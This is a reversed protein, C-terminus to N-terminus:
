RRVYLNLYASGYNDSTTCSSVGELMGIRVTDSSSTRGIVFDYGGIYSTAGTYDSLSLGCVSSGWNQAVGWNDSAFQFGVPNCGTMASPYTCHGHTSGSAYEFFMEDWTFGETNYYTGTYGTGYIEASSAVQTWGGGDTTMDCYYSGADLYYTGDSASASVSLIEACDEAPCAASTGLVGDDSTGDCDNDAGDCLEPAGPYSVSDGDDCDTSDAVAGGTALCTRSSNSADGYGDSDNDAYWTSATSTDLSSDADDTLGDCDDDVSNCVEQAAPNVASDSDDCDSDDEIYGSPAECADVGASADGYGDGDGDLYYTEGSSSDWSSDADDVLGDCDDDTENCVETAGPNVAGDGDDCDTSDEVYSSPAECADLGSSADGYGDGDGDLYYTEGSSSDWSSDADDTLGDCDDDTENCVETAGPNVASDSDDCDTSDTVTNSPQLCAQTVASADGYGDGDGDGYWTGATALDLSDDADDVAGDCDDDVSNCVEQAAPNVAGDQDDCDTSDAVYGTPAECAEQSYDPDGYGDADYDAYFTETVGEDVSGDCNDDIENCVELASPNVAADGDDCEECAAYGDGDGDEYGVSGDCNYDNPDACDDELAGPHFDVDADDCDGGAAVYGEPAQCAEEVVDDAGFGDGDGDGYWTSLVGEDVTGDCNNDVGDCIEVAEPYIGADADDCDESAPFGDGDNDPDEVVSDDGVNSDVPEDSDKCALPFLLALALLKASYTKM